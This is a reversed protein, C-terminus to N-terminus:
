EVVVVIHLQDNEEICSRLLDIQSTMNLCLQLYLQERNCDRSVLFACSQNEKQFPIPKIRKIQPALTQKM